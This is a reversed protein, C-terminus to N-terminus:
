VHARGIQGEPGTWRRAIELLDGLVGLGTLWPIAAGLASGLHLAILGGVTWELGEVGYLVLGPLPRIAAREPQTVVPVSM